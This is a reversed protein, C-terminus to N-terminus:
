YSILCLQQLSTNKSDSISILYRHLLKRSCIAVKIVGLSFILSQLVQGQYIMGEEERFVNYLVHVITVTSFDVPITFAVIIKEHRWPFNYKDTWFGIEM